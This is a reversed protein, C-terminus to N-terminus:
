KKSLTLMKEQTGSESCEVSFNEAVYGSANVSGRLPQKVKVLVHGRGAGDTQLQSKHPEDVNIKAKDIWKGDTDRVRFLVECLPVPPLPLERECPKYDYTVKLTYPEKWSLPVDNIVIENCGKLGVVVKVPSIGLDCFEVDKTLEQDKDIKRGNGEYVTVPVELRQGAPTLVRVKLSCYDQAALVPSVTIAYFVMATLLVVQHLRAM